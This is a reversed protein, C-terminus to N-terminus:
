GKQYKAMEYYRFCTFYYDGKNLINNANEGKWYKWPIETILWSTHFPKIPRSSIAILRLKSTVPSKIIVIWGPYSSGPLQSFFGLLEIPWEERMARRTTITPANEALWEILQHRSHIRTTEM